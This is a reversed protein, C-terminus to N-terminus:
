AGLYMVHVYTGLRVDYALYWGPDDPDEYLVIPDGNWNWDSVYAMDEPAVAFYFGNFWFRDPGGGALHWVHSPGFGGTFRGHEWPHDLHLDVRPREHGVWEGNAHVHPADPHGEFDRYSGRQQPSAMPRAGQREEPRGERREEPRAAPHMEPRAAEARPM